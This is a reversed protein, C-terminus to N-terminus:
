LFIHYLLNYYFEYLKEYQLIDSNDSLKIPILQYPSNECINKYIAM